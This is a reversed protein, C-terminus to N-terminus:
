AQNRPLDAFLRQWIAPSTALNKGGPWEDCTCPATRSASWVGEDEALALLPRWVGLLRPWNEDVTLAPDRGIFTNVVPVDLARAARIM